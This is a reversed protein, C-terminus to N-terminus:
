KENELDIGLSRLREELIRVRQEAEQRQQREQRAIEEPVLWRQGQEDYWYVWEREIGQYIGREIGIGLGVEPLLVVNGEQLVYSGNVLKHVELHPKRRRRSSYIVYYLIGLQAYQTKKRSYEGRYTQSLVELALTPVVDEEWLAYSLRLEEDFVREVGLSLFGDPVIPPQEPDYYIGMDVGFFWDTRDAWLWALIAKLMGPILDQLENDVPTEDSDPLEESSPYYLQPKYEFM